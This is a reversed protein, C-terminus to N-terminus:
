WKNAPCSSVTLRVKAPIFCGCLTCVNLKQNECNNCTEVRNDVTKDDAIFSNYNPLFGSSKLQDEAM